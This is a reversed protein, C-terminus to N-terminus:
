VWSNWDQAMKWWKEMWKWNSVAPTKGGGLGGGEEEVKVIGAIGPNIGNAANM